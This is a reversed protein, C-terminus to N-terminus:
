LISELQSVLAVDGDVRLDGKQYLERLKSKGDIWDALKGDAFTM